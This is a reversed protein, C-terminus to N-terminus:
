PADVGGGPAAALELLQLLVRATAGWVTVEALDFHHVQHIRGYAEREEVRHVGPAAFSGLPAEILREVEVPHARRPADPVVGVWPTLRFASVHVFLEDLPGLLEVSPPDIGVEEEAERLAAERSSEGPEVRGGPFSVQGAHLRLDARRLTFLLHPVGGRLFLPVLM